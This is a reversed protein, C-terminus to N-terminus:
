ENTPNFNAAILWTVLAILAIVAILPCWTEYCAKCNTLFTNFAQPYQIIPPHHIFTEHTSEVKDRPTGITYAETRVGIMNFSHRMYLTYYTNYSNLKM